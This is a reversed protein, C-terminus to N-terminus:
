WKKYESLMEHLDANSILGFNSYFISQIERTDYQVSIINFISETILEKEPTDIYIEGNMYSCSGDCAGFMFKDKNSIYFDTDKPGSGCNGISFSSEIERYEPHGFKIKYAVLNTENTDFKDYISLFRLDSLEEVHKQINELLFRSKSDLLSLNNKDQTKKFDFLKLESIFDEYVIKDQIYDDFTNKIKM